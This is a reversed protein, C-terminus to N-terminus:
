PNYTLVMKLFDDIDSQSRVTASFNAMAGIDYSIELGGSKKIDGALTDIGCAPFHEYGPLLKINGPPPTPPPEFLTMSVSVVSKKYWVLLISHSKWEEKFGFCGKRPPCAIEIRESSRPRCAMRSGLLERIVNRVDDIPRLANEDKPNDPVIRLTKVGGDEAFTAEVAIGPKVRYHNGDIPGYKADLEARTQATLSSAIFLGLMLSKIPFRPHLKM